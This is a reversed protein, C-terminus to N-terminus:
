DEYRGSEYEQKQADENQKLSWRRVPEKKLPRAGIEMVVRPYIKTGGAHIEIKQSSRYREFIYDDTRCRCRIQRGKEPSGFHIDPQTNRGEYSSKDGQLFQADCRGLDIINNPFISFGINRRRGITGTTCGIEQNHV